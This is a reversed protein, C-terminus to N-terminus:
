SLFTAVERRFRESQEVFSFHGCDEIVVRRAGAIGEVLDDACAPGCIFDVHGTLVFTPARVRGLEARMDWTEIGENFLKLADPNPREVAVKQDLYTRARDDYHAFYFPFERLVLARLEDEDAFDGAEERAFADQADEYWPENAHSQMLAEMEDPHLRVLSNALVLRRISAPHDAAYAVGVVGGHSHGLVDIQEVGLHLRLEEMDAVYDSTAYAREDAPLDSGGTGRPDLLILTRSETLGGLDGLCLSSFGPGGPHCVLLPGEGERRYTLARGDQTRFSETV